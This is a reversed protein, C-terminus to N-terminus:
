GVMLQTSGFEFLEEDTIETQGLYDLRTAKRNDWARYTSCEYKATGFINKLEHLDGWISDGTTSTEVLRDELQSRTM